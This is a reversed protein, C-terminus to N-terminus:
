GLGSDSENQHSIFPLLNGEYANIAGVHYGEDYILPYQASIAIWGSQLVFLSMIILFFKKSGLFELLSSEFQAFKRKYTKAQLRRMELKTHCVISGSYIFMMVSM